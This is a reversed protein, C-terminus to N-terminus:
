EDAGHAEPNGASYRRIREMAAQHAVKVECPTLHYHGALGEHGCGCPRRGILTDPHAENTMTRGQTFYPRVWVDREPSRLLARDGEYAAITYTGRDYLVTSGIAFHGNM